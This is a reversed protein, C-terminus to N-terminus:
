ASKTLQSAEMSEAQEFTAEIEEVKDQQERAKKEMVEVLKKAKALGQEMEKRPEALSKDNKAVKQVSALNAKAHKLVQAAHEAADALQMKKQEASDLDKSAELLEKKSEKKKKKVIKKAKKHAKSLKASMKAATLTAVKQLAGLHQDMRNCFQDQEAQALKKAHAERAAIESVIKDKAATISKEQQHIEAGSLDVDIDDM